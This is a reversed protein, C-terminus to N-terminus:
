SRPSQRLSRLCNTSKGQASDGLCAIGLSGQYIDSKGLCLTCYGLCAIGPRRLCAIGQSGWCIVSKGLCLTCDGLCATGLSGWYIASKRLCLTLDALCAVGLSGWHVASRGLCLTHDKGLCEQCDPARCPKSGGLGTVIGLCAIGRVIGRPLCTIGRPYVTSDRLWITINRLHCRGLSTSGLFCPRGGERYAYCDGPNKGESSGLGFHTILKDLLGKVLSCLDTSALSGLKATEGFCGGLKSYIVTM